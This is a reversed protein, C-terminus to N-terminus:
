GAAASTASAAPTVRRGPEAQEGPQADGRAGALGIMVWVHRFNEVDQGLGDVGLGALGGWTARDTPKTRGRWLVVLLGVLALLAPLGLTAAIGVPTNHAQRRGYGPAEGPLSGPGTGLLPHEALTEVAADLEQSRVSESGSAVRTSLPDSPDFYVKTFTLLAMAAVSVVAAGITVRRWSRGLDARILVALLFGIIARSVTAFVTVALALQATLRLGRPLVDKGRAIVASAFICYSGLLAPHTMGAQVRAYDNSALLAGYSGVLRTHVGSYFLLLGALAAGAALLSTGAVVWTIMRLADPDSAFDATLYALVALEAVGVLNEVGGGFAGSSAFYSAFAAAVYAALALEAAGIRRSALEGRKEVLWAVATAAVLPDTWQANEALWPFSPISQWPLFALAALYLALAPRQPLRWEALHAAPRGLM